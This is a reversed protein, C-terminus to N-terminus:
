RTTLSNLKALYLKEDSPKFALEAARKMAKKANRVQGLHYYTKAKGYFSEHLYPAAQISKEFYTLAETYSQNIYAQNALDFWRYPNDDEIKGIIQKIAAAEQFRKQGQLLMVYNSLLAISRNAEEISNSYIKEALLINGSIKHLVALTNLTEKNTPSLDMAAVLYSYALDFDKEIMAEAAKNQYFMASFDAGNVVQGVISAATPFYDIIIKSPLIRFHHSNSIEVKPAFLHTQIHSSITMVGINRQYIPASNVKRYEVDLNVLSAYAKTM